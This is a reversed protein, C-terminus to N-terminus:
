EPRELDEEEEGPTVKARSEPLWGCPLMLREGPFQQTQSTRLSDICPYITGTNKICCESSNIAMGRFWPNVFSKAWWGNRSLLNTLVCGWVSTQMDETAAKVSCRGLQTTTVSVVYTVCVM